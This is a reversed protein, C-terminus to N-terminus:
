HRWTWEDAAYMQELQHARAREDRTLSGPALRIGFSQEFAACVARAVDAPPPAAGLLERLTVSGSANREGATHYFLQEVAAQTGDLLLSGHQLLTRAECRQASGVLKRGASVVEGPAPERFCPEMADRQPERARGGEARAAEVGLSRLAAVLAENIAAYAGRAGGFRALPATVSYTLEQHHLVALGGTPRRVLAIGARAARAPDYIGRARQNRGFSLTPPDWLYLRLIPGAGTRAGDFLAHDVAMNYAGRAPALEGTGSGLVLRWM